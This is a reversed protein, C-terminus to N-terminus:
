WPETSSVNTTSSSPRGRARSPSTPAATSGVSVVATTSNLSRGASSAASSPCSIAQTRASGASVLMPMTSGSGPKQSPARAAHVRVPVSSIMSSVWVSEAPGPPHVAAHPRSGSMTVSPLDIAPPM